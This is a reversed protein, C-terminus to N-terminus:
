TLLSARLRSSYFLDPRVSYMISRVPPLSYGTFVPSVHRSCCSRGRSGQSCSWKETDGLGTCTCETVVLSDPVPASASASIPAQGEGLLPSNALCKQNWLKETQTTARGSHFSKIQGCYKSNISIKSPYLIRRGCKWKGGDWM